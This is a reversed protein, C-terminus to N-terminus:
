ASACCYTLINDMWFPNTRWKKWRSLLLLLFVVFVFFISSFLKAMAHVRVIEWFRMMYINIEMEFVEFISISNSNNFTLWCWDRDPDTVDSISNINISNLTIAILVSNCIFSCLLFYYLNIIECQRLIYIHVYLALPGVNVVGGGGGWM